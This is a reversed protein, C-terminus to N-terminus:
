AWCYLLLTGFTSKLFDTAFKEEREITNLVGLEGKTQWMVKYNFFTIFGTYPSVDFSVENGDFYSDAAPFIIRRILLTQQYLLTPNILEYAFVEM